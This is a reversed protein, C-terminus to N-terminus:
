VRGSVGRPICKELAKSEIGFAHSIPVDVNGQNGFVGGERATVHHHLQDAEKLSLLSFLSACDAITATTATYRSDVQIGNRVGSRIV